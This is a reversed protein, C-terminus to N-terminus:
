PEIAGLFNLCVSSFEDPKEAHLWHGAGEITEITAFPFLARISIFDEDLVYDSKAGRVFLADGEFVEWGVIEGILHPYAREIANLNMGWALGGLERILNKMLFQRVGADPISRSMVEDVDGRGSVHSLNVSRFAHFIADHRRPYGKPAIDAVVLRDVVEPHELALHMALKGGMSHGLIHARELGEDQMLELIDEAMEVYSFTDSHPSRGHNRLDVTITRFSPGFRNKALTQWNGSSGLLGHIIILPEGAGFTQRYLKM